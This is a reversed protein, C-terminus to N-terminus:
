KAIGELPLRAGAPGPLYSPQPPARLTVRERHERIARLSPRTIRPLTLSFADEPYFPLKRLDPWLETVQAGILRTRVKEGPAKPGSVLVRSFFDPLIVPM